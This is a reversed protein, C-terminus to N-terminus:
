RIRAYEQGKPMTMGAFLDYQLKIRPKFAVVGDPLNDILDELQFHDLKQRIIEFYEKVDVNGVWLTGEADTWVQKGVDSNNLILEYASCLSIASSLWGTGSRWIRARIFAEDLDKEALGDLSDVQVKQPWCVVVQDTDPAKLKLVPVWEGVTEHCFKELESEPIRKMYM